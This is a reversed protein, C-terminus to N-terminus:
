PESYLLAQDRSVGSRMSAEIDGWTMLDVLFVPPMPDWPPVVGGAISIQRGDLMRRLGILLTGPRGPLAASTVLDPDLSVVARWRDAYRRIEARAGRLRGGGPEFRLSGDSAVHIVRVPAGHPGLYIGVEDGGDPFRADTFCELFVEWREDHKRLIGKTTWRLPAQIAVGSWATALTMPEVFPGFQIGPPRAQLRDPRLLLRHEMRGVYLILENPQPRPELEGHKVPDQRQRDIEIEIVRGAPVIAASPVPDGEVWQIRVVQEGDTPNAIAVRVSAGTEVNTWVLVPIRADLFFLISRVVIMDDRGTDLMLDLISKLETQDTIWTGIIEGTSTM